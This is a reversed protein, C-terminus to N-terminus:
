LVPAWSRRHRKEIFIFTNSLVTATWLLIVQGKCEYMKNSNMETACVIHLVKRKCLM